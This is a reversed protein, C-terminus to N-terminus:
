TNTSTKMIAMRGLNFRVVGGRKVIREAEDVGRENKIWRFCENVGWNLM